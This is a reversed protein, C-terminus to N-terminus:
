KQKTTTSSSSSDSHLAGAAKGTDSAKQPAYAQSYIAEKRISKVFDKVNKKLAKDFEIRETMVEPLKIPLLHKCMLETVKEPNDKCFDDYGVQELWEFFFSAFHLVRASADATKM